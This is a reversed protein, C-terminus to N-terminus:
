DAISFPNPSITISKLRAFYKSQPQRFVEIKITNTGNTLSANITYDTFMATSNYYLQDQLQGNIYIKLGNGSAADWYSLSLNYQEEHSFDLFLVVYPNQNEESYISLSNYETNVYWQGVGSFNWINPLDVTIESLTIIKTLNIIYINENLKEAYDQLLSTKDACFQKILVITYNQLDSLSKEQFSGQWYFRRSIKNDYGQRLNLFDGINGYYSLHEGVIASVWNDYLEVVGPNNLTYIFILSANHATSYDKMYFLEDYIGKDIFIKPYFGLSFSLTLSATIVLSSMFVISVSKFFRGNIEAYLKRLLGEILPVALFISPFIVLAREAFNRLPLFFNLLVLLLTLFTWSLVFVDFSCKEKKSLAFYIGSIVLPILYLGFSYLFIEFSIMGSGTALNGETQLRFFKAYLYLIASPALGAVLVFSKQTKNRSKNAILTIFVISTFFFTVEFHVLSAFFVLGYTLASKRRSFNSYDLVLAVFSLCLILGLLNSHLGALRYVTFWACTSIMTLTASYNSTRKVFIYVVAPFLLTLLIPVYKEIQFASLPIFSTTIPYLFNAFCSRQILEAFQGTKALNIMTIYWPTDWGIPLDMDPYTTYAIIYYCSIFAFPLLYGGIFKTSDSTHFLRKESNEFAKKLKELAIKSAM